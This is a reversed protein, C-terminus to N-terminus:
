MAPRVFNGLDAGVDLMNMGVRMKALREIGCDRSTGEIDDDRSVSADADDSFCERVLGALEDSDAAERSIAAEGIGSGIKGGTQRDRNGLGGRGDLAFRFM